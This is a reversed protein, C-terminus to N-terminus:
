LGLQPYLKKIITLNVQNEFRQVKRYTRLLSFYHQELKRIKLTHIM